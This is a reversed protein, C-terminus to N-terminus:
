KGFLFRVKTVEGTKVEIEKPKSFVGGFVAVVNFKGPAIPIARTSRISLYEEWVDRGSEEQIIVKARTFRLQSIPIDLTVEIRVEIFGTPVTVSEEEEPLTIAM